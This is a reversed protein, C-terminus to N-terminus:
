PRLFFSTLCRFLSYEGIYGAGGTVLVRQRSLHIAARHGSPFGCESPINRPLLCTTFVTPSKPIYLLTFCCFLQYTLYDIGSDYRILIVRNPNSSILLSTTTTSDCPCTSKANQTKSGVGIVVDDWRGGSIKGSRSV